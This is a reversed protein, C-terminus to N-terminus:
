MVQESITLVSKIFLGFTLSKNHTSIYEDISLFLNGFVVYSHPM